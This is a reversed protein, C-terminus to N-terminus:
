KTKKRKKKPKAKPSEKKTTKKKETSNTTDTTETENALTKLAENNEVPIEKKQAKVPEKAKDDSPKVSKSTEAKQTGPESTIGTDLVPEKQSSSEIETEESKIKDKITIAKESVDKIAKGSSKTKTKNNSTKGNETTSSDKEPLPSFFLQSGPRPIVHTAIVRGVKNAAIEGANVAAKVAAVDGTFKITVLATKTIEYGLLDVNAAKMGVDAAEIAAAFGWTEIMGLSSTKRM